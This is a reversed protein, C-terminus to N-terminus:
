PRASQVSALRSAEARDAASLDLRLARRYAETAERPRRLAALSRGAALHAAGWRPARDIAAEYRRLAARHDGQRALADGEFKLPDAWRPGRSQAERFMRIAGPLDGRALRVEGWASHASPLSPGQRVAEAFWRDAAAPDGSRAALEGRVILCPYCDNPMAAALEAAEPVRGNRVLYRADMAAADPSGNNPIALSARLARPWDELAAATEMELFNRVLLTADTRPLDAALRRASPLDRGLASQQAAAWLYSQMGSDDGGRASIAAAEESAEVSAAHDRTLLRAYSLMAPEGTARAIQSLGDGGGPRRFAARASAISALAAEHQGLIWESAGVFALSAGDSPNLQVARRAASLAERARESNLLLVSMALYAQAREKDTGRGLLPRVLAEAEEMREESTLYSAMRLPQTDQLVAEAASQLLAPMEAETGELTRGPSGSARVTLLLRDGQRRLAGSVITQRGLRQRLYREVEGLSVGTQPIEVRVTEGEGRAEAQSFVTGVEAKAQIIEM